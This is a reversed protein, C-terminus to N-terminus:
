CLHLGMDLSLAHGRSARVRSLHALGSQCWISTSRPAHVFYRPATTTEVAGVTCPPM